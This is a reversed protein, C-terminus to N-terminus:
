LRLALNLQYGPMFEYGDGPDSHLPVFRGGELLFATGESVRLECGARLLLLGDGLYDRALPEYGFKREEQAPLWGNMWFIGSGLAVYPTFWALDYSAYVTAPVQLIWAGPEPNALGLGSQLSLAFASEPPMLNYKLEGLLGLTMFTAVGVELSGTLGRKVALQSVIPHPWEARREGDELAAGAAILVSWEGEPTTRATQPTTIACATFLAPLGVLLAINSRQRPMSM